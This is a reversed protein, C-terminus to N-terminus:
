KKPKYLKKKGDKLCGVEDGVDGDQRIVYMKSNPNGKEVYYKVKKHTVTVYGPDEDSEVDDVNNDLNNDVNDEVVECTVNNTSTVLELKSNVLELEKKLSAVTKNLNNVEKDKAKLMGFKNGEEEKVENVCLSNIQKEYDCIIKKDTIIIKDKLNIEDILKMNAKNLIDNKKNLEDIDNYNHSEIETWVCLLEHVAKDVNSKKEIIKDM